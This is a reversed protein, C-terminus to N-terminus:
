RSTTRRSTRLWGGIDEAVMQLTSEKKSQKLEEFSRSMVCGPSTDRHAPAPFVTSIGRIRRYFLPFVCIPEGGKYVAYPLLTSGTHKATLHLYDWKHFLLGSPSEDIFTDWTDKDDVRAATM